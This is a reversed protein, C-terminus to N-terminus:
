PREESGLIARAARRAAGAPDAGGEEVARVIASGVVVGDAM